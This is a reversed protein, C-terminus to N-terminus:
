LFHNLVDTLSLVAVPREDGDVLWARRCNMKLLGSMVQSLTFNEHIVYPSTVPLHMGFMYALVSRGLLGINCSTLSRLNAGAVETVLRGDYDVVPLASNHTDHLLRLASLATDRVTLHPLHKPASPRLSEHTTAVELAPTDLSNGLEHNHHQIFRVVDYQTLGCVAEHAEGSQLSAASCGSDISALRKRKSDGEPVQAAYEKAAVDDEADFDAVLVRHQGHTAFMRVLEELPALASIEQSAHKRSQVVQAITDQLVTANGSPRGSLLQFNVEKELDKSHIIYDRIDYVSVIDVFSRSSSDFVPLSVIDHDHMLTLADEITGVDSITHYLQPNGRYELVDRVTYKELAATKM